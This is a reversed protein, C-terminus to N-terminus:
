NAEAIRVIHLDCLCEGKILVQLINKYYDMRLQKITDLKKEQMWSTKHYVLFVLAPRFVRTWWDAPIYGAIRKSMFRYKKQRM